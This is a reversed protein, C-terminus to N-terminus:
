YNANRLEFGKVVVDEVDEWDLPDTNSVGIYIAEGIHTPMTHQTNEWVKFGYEVYEDLLDEEMHDFDFLLDQIEVYIQAKVYDSYKQENILQGLKKWHM